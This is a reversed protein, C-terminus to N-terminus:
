CQIHKGKGFKKLLWAEVVHMVELDSVNVVTVRVERKGCTEIKM